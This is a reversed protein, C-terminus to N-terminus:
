PYFQKYKKSLTIRNLSKQMVNNQTKNQETSIQDTPHM